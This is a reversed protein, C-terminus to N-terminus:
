YQDSGNMGYVPSLVASEAPEMFQKRCSIRLMLLCRGIQDEADTSTHFLTQSQFRPSDSLHVWTSRLHHPESSGSSLSAACSVSPDLEMCCKRLVNSACPWTAALSLYHGARSRWACLALSARRQLLAIRLYSRWPSWRSHAIRWWKRCQRRMSHPLRALNRASAVNPHSCRSLSLAAFGSDHSIPRFRRCHSNGATVAMM